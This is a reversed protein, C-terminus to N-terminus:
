GKQGWAVFLGFEIKILAGHCSLEQEVASRVYHRTQEEEGAKAILSCFLETLPEAEAIKLSQESRYLAVHSFWRSLQQEGNELSFSSSALNAEM